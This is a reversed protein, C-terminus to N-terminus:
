TFGCNGSSATLSARLGELWDRVEPELEVTGWSMADISHWIWSAFILSAFILPQAGGALSGCIIPM